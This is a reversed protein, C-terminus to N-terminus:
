WDFRVRKHCNMCAGLRIKGGNGDILIPSVVWASDHECGKEAMKSRLREFAWEPFAPVRNFEYTKMFSHLHKRCRLCIFRIECSQTRRIYRLGTHQGTYANSMYLEGGEPCRHIRLFEETVPLDISSGYDLKLWSEASM